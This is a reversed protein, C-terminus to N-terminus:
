LGNDSSAPLGNFTARHCNGFGGGQIGRPNFRLAVLELSRSTATVAGCRVIKFSM